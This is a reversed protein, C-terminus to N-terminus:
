ASIWRSPSFSTTVTCTCPRSGCGSPSRITPSRTDNPMENLKWPGIAVSMPGSHYPSDAAFTGREDSSVPVPATPRPMTTTPRPASSDTRRAAPWEPRKPWPWAFVTGTILGYVVGDLSDMAMARHKKRFWLDNPLGAFSDAVAANDTRGLAEPGLEQTGEPGNRPQRPPLRRSCRTLVHLARVERRADEEPIGRPRPRDDRPPQVEQRNRDARLDGRLRNHPPAPAATPARHPM